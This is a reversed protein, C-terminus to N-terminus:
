LCIEACKPNSSSYGQDLVMTVEYAEEGAKLVPILLENNEYVADYLGVAKVQTCLFFLVVITINRM